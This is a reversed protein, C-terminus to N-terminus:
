ATKSPVIAGGCARLGGEWHNMSTQLGHVVEQWMEQNSRATQIDTDDVFSFGSFRIAKYTIATTLFTGLDKNRLIDLIPSSIVAWILPGAGNGQCIGHMPIVENGGFSTDLDGFAMRVQHKVEQLTNFLCTMVSEPVGQRRMALVASPHVILDYCSKANNACIAGPSKLQCLIDNTLVKNVALDIAQLNKRSGFQEPALTRHIKANRMM